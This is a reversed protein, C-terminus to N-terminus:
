PMPPANCISDDYCLGEVCEGTACDAATVCAEGVKLHYDCTGEVCRGFTCRTGDCPDGPYRAPACLQDVCVLGPLCASSGGCEAGEPGPERCEGLVCSLGDLCDDAVRCPSGAPAPPECTGLTVADVTTEFGVCHLGDQCADFDDSCPGGEASPAHCTGEGLLPADCWLHV